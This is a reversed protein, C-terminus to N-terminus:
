PRSKSHSSRTESGSVTAFETSFNPNNDPYPLFELVFRVDADEGSPVSADFTIFGGNQFVMPTLDNTAFPQAFGGWVESGESPFTYV